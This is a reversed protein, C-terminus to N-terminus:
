WRSSCAYPRQLSANRALGPYREQASRYEQGGGGIKRFIPRGLCIEWSEQIDAIDGSLREVQEVILTISQRLNTCILPLRERTKAVTAQIIDVLLGALASAIEIRNQKADQFRNKRAEEVFDEMARLLQALNIQLDSDSRAQERQELWKVTSSGAAMAEYLPQM